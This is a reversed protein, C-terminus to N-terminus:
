LETIGVEIQFKKGDDNALMFVNKGDIVEMENVCHLPNGDTDFCIMDAIQERDRQNVPGMKKDLWAIGQKTMLIKGDPDTKVNQKVHSHTRNELVWEKQREDLEVWSM